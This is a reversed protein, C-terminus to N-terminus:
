ILSLILFPYYHRFIFVGKRVGVFVGMFVGLYDSGIIIKPESIFSFNESWKKTLADEATTKAMRNSQSMMAPFTM